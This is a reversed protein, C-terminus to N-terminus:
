SKPQMRDLPGTASDSRRHARRHRVTLDRIVKAHGRVRVTRSGFEDKLRANVREVTTRKRYHVSEAFTYNLLKSPKQEAHLEKKLLQDHRPHIDIIPIHGLSRSHEHIAQADYASDMLDYLNTVRQSTM